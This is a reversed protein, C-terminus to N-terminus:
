RTHAEEFKWFDAPQLIPISEIKKLVLLDKDGTIICDVQGYLAAALIHDDDHDRSIHRFLKTEETIVCNKRLFTMILNTEDPTLKIKHLLKNEIEKLVFDSLCVIHHVICHNLLDNCSGHTAYAAVLVNTDFFVKM